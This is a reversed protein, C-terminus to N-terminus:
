QALRDRLMKLPYHTGRWIIGKNRYTALVSNCMTYVLIAISLPYFLAYYKGIRFHRAVYFSLIATLVVNIVNLYFLPGSFIFVAFMPWIFFFVAATADRLVPFLQFDYFAFCNKKMGQIMNRMSSYWEREVFDRGDVTDQHFGNKKLLEGLKLDDLCEMAIAQHGFCSEYASKKVLNFAGHGISKKSNPRRIRWPKMAMTYAIYSGLLAVKLWFAQRTHHEFITLHDLQNHIAYSIAKQLTDPKMIVDADTFLLWSGTARQSALHLAHNKGLWNDPLTNIHAIKLIPHQQQMRELIQPTSDTSRDNIAIIELRPYSLNILSTLAPEISDEENLASLILSIKPLADPNLLAEDTLNQIQKFGIVFEIITYCLYLLTLTAWIVLLSEM